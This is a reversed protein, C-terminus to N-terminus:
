PRMAEALVSRRDMLLRGLWNDGYPLHGRQRKCEGSCVGWFVDHWWNGEVLGRAGTSLLRRALDSGVAFKVELLARMVWIRADDWGPRITLPGGPSGLRKAAGPDKVAQVLLREEPVDTKSCVYGHESTPLELGLWVISAEGFNSLFRFDGRFDVIADPGYDGAPLLLSM